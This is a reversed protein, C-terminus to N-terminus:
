NENLLSIITQGRKYVDGAGMTLYIWRSSEHQTFRILKFWDSRKSLLHFPRQQAKLKSILHQQTLGHDGLERASTFIPLLGLYDAKGLVKIFEALFTQTRSLTHPQFCLAIRHRPFRARIAQLSAEIEAPHHAYDDIVLNHGVKGVLELRRKTGTFQAAYQAARAPVIGLEAFCAIAATINVANHEGMLKPTLKALTASVRYNNGAKFGFTIFPKHSQKALNLLKPDDGNVILKGNQPLRKFFDLYAAAVESLDHFFDPHDFDLNTCVIIRPHFFLFKSRRHLYNDSLYEDAETVFLDGNSWRGPPYDMFRPAGVFYSPDLHLRLAIYAILSTTTSKGHCGCVAINKKLTTLYGIAEPLCFVTKRMRLAAKVELNRSGNHSASYVVVNSAKVHDSHFGQFVKIKADVLTKDTMFQEKTDSGTVDKNLDKLILALATMAVGKIGVLHFRQADLFNLM